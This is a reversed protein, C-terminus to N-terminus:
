SRVPGQSTKKMTSGSCHSGPKRRLRAAPRSICQAPRRVGLDDALGDHDRISHDVVGKAMKAQRTALGAPQIAALFAPRGARRTAKAAETGIEGEGWRGAGATPSNGQWILMRSLWISFHPM